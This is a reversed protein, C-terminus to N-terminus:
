DNPLSDYKQPTNSTSSSNEDENVTNIDEDDLGNEKKMDVLWKDGRKVMDLKNEAGKQTYSVVAISDNKMIVQFNEPQEENDLENNKNIKTINELMDIMKVTNETGLKKAEQYKKQYILNIFNKAVVEPKETKSCSLLLLLPFIFIFIKQM